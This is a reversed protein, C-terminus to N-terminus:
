WITKRNSAICKRFRRPPRVFVVSGKWITVTIKKDEDYMSVSPNALYKKRVFIRM